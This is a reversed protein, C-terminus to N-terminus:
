TVFPCAFENHLFTLRHHFRHESCALIALQVISIKLWNHNKNLQPQGTKETPWVILSRNIPSTPTLGFLSGIKRVSRTSAYFYIPAYHIALLKVDLDVSSKKEEKIIEFITACTLIPLHNSSLYLRHWCFCFHVSRLCFYDYLIELAM